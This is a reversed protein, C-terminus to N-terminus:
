FFASQIITKATESDSTLFVNDHSLVGILHCAVLKNLLGARAFSSANNRTLENNSSNRMGCESALSGVFDIMKKLQFPTSLVVKL